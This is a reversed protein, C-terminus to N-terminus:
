KLKKTIGTAKLAYYLVPSLICAFVANIASAPMALVTRTWAGEWPLGSIFHGELFKRGWYLILYAAAGFVGSLVVRLPTRREEKVAGFAAGCVLGMAGKTVFTMVASFIGYESYFLLDYLFSGLGGAIGGGAAGLLLGAALIFANAPHIYSELFPIRIMTTLFVVASMMGLFVIRYTKRDARNM